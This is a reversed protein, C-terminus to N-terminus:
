LFVSHWDRGCGPGEGEACYMGGLSFTSFPVFDESEGSIGVRTLQNEDLPLRYKLEVVIKSIDDKSIQSKLFFDFIITSLDNLQDKSFVPVKQDSTM